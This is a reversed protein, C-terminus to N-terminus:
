LEYTAANEFAPAEFNLSMSFSALNQVKSGRYFILSLTPSSDPCITPAEGVVSGGICMQHGYEARSNFATNHCFFFSLVATFRLANRSVDPQRIVSIVGNLTTRSYYEFDFKCHINVRVYDTVFIPSALLTRM